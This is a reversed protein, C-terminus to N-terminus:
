GFNGSGNGAHPYLNMENIGDSSTVVSDTTANYSYADTGMNNYVNEHITFPLFPNPGGPPEYGIVRDDFAATATAVIDTETVGLLPAFLFQLAGNPSSATQRVTVSVANTQTSPLTTVIPSTASNLDIWGVGIDNGQTTLHETGLSGNSQSITHVRQALMFYVYWDSGGQRVQMMADGTLATAGAIAAADAAHQLDSKVNYMTGVDVTLAAFGLLAVLMMVVMPAVVGRRRFSRRAVRKGIM